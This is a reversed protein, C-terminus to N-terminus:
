GRPWADDVVFGRAVPEWGDAGEHFGAVFLADDPHQALLEELSRLQAADDVIQDSMWQLRGLRMWGTNAPVDPTHSSLDGRHVWFGRLADPNAHPHDHAAFKPNLADFLYGKVFARRQLKGGAGLKRLVRRALPDESLALQQRRMKKWKAQLVDASNPGVWEPGSRGPVGLYYKVALEWHHTFGDRTFLLDFEGVTGDPGHVQVNSGLLKAPPIEDLWTRILIEFYEGLRNTSRRSVANQLRSGKQDLRALLGQNREIEARGWDSPVATKHVFM